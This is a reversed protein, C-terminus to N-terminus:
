NELESLDQAIQPKFRGYEEFHWSRAQGIPRNEQELHPPQATLLRVGADTPGGLLGRSPWRRGIVPRPVEALRLCALGRLILGCFGDQGGYSTTGPCRVPTVVRALSPLNPLLHHSTSRTTRSAAALVRTLRLASLGDAWLAGWCGLGITAEGITAASM